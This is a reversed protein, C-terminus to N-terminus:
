YKNKKKCYTVTMKKVQAASLKLSVGENEQKAAEIRKLPCTTLVIEFKNNSSFNAIGM